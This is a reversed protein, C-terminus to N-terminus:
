PLRCNASSSTISFCMAGNIFTHEDNLGCKRTTFDNAFVTYRAVVSRSTGKQLRWTSKDIKSFVLPTNDSNSAKFQVVSGPFDFIVYRGSRWVPLMLDITSETAPFNDFVAEVEFLHTWPRPMSITYHITPSQAHLLFPFVLLGFLFKM